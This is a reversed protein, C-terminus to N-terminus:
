QGLGTQSAKLAEEKGPQGTIISSPPLLSQEHVALARTSWAQYYRSVLAKQQEVSV